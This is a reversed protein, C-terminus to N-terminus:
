WGQIEMRRVGWDVDLSDGGGELLEGVGDGCVCGWGAWRGVEIGGGTLECDDM